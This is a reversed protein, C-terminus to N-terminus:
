KNAKVTDDNEKSTACLGLDKLMEFERGSRIHTYYELFQTAKPPSMSELLKTVLRPPLKTLLAIVLDRDMSELLPAAKRPEMKAIFDVTEKLRDEKIKKEKQLTEDLLRKDEEVKKWEQEVDVRSKDYANKAQELHVIKQEVDKKILELEERLRLAESTPMYGNPINPLNPKPISKKDEQKAPVDTTNLAVPAPQANSVEPVAPPVVPATPASSAEPAVPPVVPEAAGYAYYPFLLFATGAIFKNRKM